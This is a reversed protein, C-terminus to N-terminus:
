NQQLHLLSKEYPPVSKSSCLAARAARLRRELDQMRLSFEMPHLQLAQSAQCTTGFIFTILYCHM